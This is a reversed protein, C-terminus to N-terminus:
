GWDAADLSAFFGMDQEHPYIPVWSRGGPLSIAACRSQWVNSLGFLALVNSLKGTGLMPESILGRLYGCLAASTGTASGNIGAGYCMMGARVPLLRDVQLTPIATMVTIGRSHMAGSAGFRASVGQEVAGTYPNRLSMGFRYAHNGLCQGTSTGTSNHGGLCCFAGAGTQGLVNIYNGFYIATSYGSNPQDATSIGGGACFICTKDDAIVVWHPNTGGYLGGNSFLYFRETVSSGDYWGASRRNVGAALAASADTIAEMIYVAVGTAANRVLNIVGDGNALSFGGSVDHGVTWGAAPKSGYGDVLCARLIARLRDYLDGSLAPAGTDLSSYFRVTM